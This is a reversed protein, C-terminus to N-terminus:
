PEGEETVESWGARVLWPTQRATTTLASSDMDSETLALVKLFRARDFSEPM